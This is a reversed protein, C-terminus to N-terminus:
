MAQRLNQKSFIFLYFGCGIAVTLTKDFYCNRQMKVHLVPYICHIQM